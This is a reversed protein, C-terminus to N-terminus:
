AEEEDPIRRNACDQCLYHGDTECERYGFFRTGEPDYGQCPFEPDRLGPKGVLSGLEFKLVLTPLPCVYLTRNKQDWYAGVWLDYWKFGIHIRM